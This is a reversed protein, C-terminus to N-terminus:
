IGMIDDGASRRIPKSEPMDFGGFPFMLLSLVLLFFGLIISIILRLIFELIKM